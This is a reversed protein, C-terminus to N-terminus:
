CNVISGEIARPYLEITCLRFGCLYQAKEDLKTWGMQHCMGVSNYEILFTETACNVTIGVGAQGSEADISDVFLTVQHIIIPQAFASTLLVVM